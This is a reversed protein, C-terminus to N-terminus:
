GIAALEKRETILDLNLRLEDENFGERIMMTRYTPIGIETPILAESGYTLSVCWSKFPDNVLQTGNDTIIIRPLGFRLMPVLYSKKFLVGDEMAYQNIKVWLNRAENKDKPWVGKKLCQIIPTMWNDGEYEVVINIEKAKTLRENLVEVLVEKTLHNFAVSALKNLVDAKQNQNRMINRISFSKFCAIYENEKALYKIMIDSNAIYSGNIQSAVLKFDVKAELNQINMRKAIILGALLAEYEEKNNTIDLTLCLAYTHEVDSPSILVLGARSGKLCEPSEGGRTETIFDVLVQGKMANTPEFTINYAGLEVAYKTLKGSAETKDLIQKIPQDTIVENLTRSVYYIPCQTGKRDTLLVFSVAEKSVALYAYLTEKSFSPTLSPLNMICKKM